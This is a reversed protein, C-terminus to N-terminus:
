TTFYPILGRAVTSRSCSASTSDRMVAACSGPAGTPEPRAAGFDAASGCRCSSTGTPVLLVAFLVALDLTARASVSAPWSSAPCRPRRGTGRVTFSECLGFLRSREHPVPHAEPGLGYHPILYLTHVPLLPHLLGAALERRRRPDPDRAFLAVFFTHPPDSPWTVSRSRTRDSVWGMVSDTMADFARSIAKALAIWGLPVVRRGLLLHRPPHRLPIAIAAGAFSPAGFALRLRLPLPQQSDGPASVDDRSASRSPSPTACTRGRSAALRPRLRPARPIGKTHPLRLGAAPRRRAARRSGECGGRPLTVGVRTAQLWPTRPSPTPCRAGSSPSAGLLLRVWDSGMEVDVRLNPSASSCATASSRGSALARPRGDGAGAPSDGQLLPVRGALEGCDEAYKACGAAATSCWRSPARGSPISAPITGRPRRWRRRACASCARTGPYAGVRSQRRRRPARGPHADARRLRERFPLLGWSSSLPQLRPLRRGAGRARGEDVRGHPVGQPHSVPVGARPRADM